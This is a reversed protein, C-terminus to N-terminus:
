AMRAPLPLNPALEAMKRSLRWLLDGRIGHCQLDMFRNHIEHPDEQLDYLEGWQAGAFISLRWRDTILTRVRPPSPLGPVDRHSQEEVLIARDTALVTEPESRLYALLSCGQMGHFPLVGARALLTPALDMACALANVRQARRVTATDRWIFPMRVVSQYHLPGKFLLGHDGMFDGHDSLFIVVTDDDLELERLTQMIRGVADDVMSIAGYNLAIAQRAEAATVAIVRSGSTRRRGEALEQHLARKHPPASAPAAAFSPPLQVAGPDYMSWYRGPPTFPHHPDPFSCQLLFPRGRDSGCAHQRLWERAREAIFSTPYLREDLATRWAQPAHVPADTDLASASGHHRRENSKPDQVQLWREYDGGVTDGHELCLAAEDFGYYPLPIHFDPRLWQEQLECDYADGTRDDRDAQRARPIISEGSVPSPQADTMNQFHAKGILATRYGAERLADAYTVASLPLPVGNMRVGAAGPMRGTALAARNPMCVPANVYFREFVAGVNALADIHPTRVLGNGFCGLHDARQQDTMFVLFNPQKKPLSPLATPRAAPDM